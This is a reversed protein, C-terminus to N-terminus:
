MTKFWGGAMFAEFLRALWGGSRCIPRPTLKVYRPGPKM